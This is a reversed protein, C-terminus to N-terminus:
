FNGFVALSNATGVFVKGGAITPVSFKIGPGSVDRNGAQNSNYLQTLDTAKYAYLAAPDSSNLAWVIANNGQSDSSISLGAGRTGFQTNGSAYPKPSLMGNALAFGRVPDVPAAFYVSQNAYVPPPYPAEVSKGFPFPVDQVIRDSDPHYQGLSDRNLLYIESIKGAAVALHPYRGPQDPLLLPAGSGFDYDKDDLIKQYFPTFYDTISAGGPALKLLSDGYSRGGRNANFGGNGTITYINGQPDASPGGGSQWVAGRCDGNPADPSANLIATQQLTSANYAMLWGNYAQLDCHSGFGIYITGNALLLAPRQHQILPHFVVNGNGDTIGCSGPVSGQIAVPGGFKEKGTTLDLAHLRHFYSTGSASVEKTKAVVYITLTAPDIVPTSTIGIM